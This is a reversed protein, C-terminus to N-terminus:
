PTPAAPYVEAFSGPELSLAVHEVQGVLEVLDNLRQSRGRLVVVALDFQSLAQQHPLNSDLTVFVDFAEAAVRLLEGNKKGKWGRYAVTQVDFESSFHLRLRVDIAEDLLVRVM